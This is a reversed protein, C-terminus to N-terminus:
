PYIQLFTKSEFQPDMIEAVGSSRAAREAILRLHGVSGVMSESLRGAPVPLTALLTSCRPTSHGHPDPHRSNSKFIRNQFVCRNEYENSRKQLYWRATMPM